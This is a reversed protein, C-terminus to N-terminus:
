YRYAILLKRAKKSFRLVMLAFFSLPITVAPFEMIIFCFIGTALGIISGSIRLWQLDGGAIENVKEVLNNDSLRDLMDETLELMSKYESEILRIFFNKLEINIFEKNEEVYDVLGSVLEPTILGAVREAAVPALKSVLQSVGAKIDLSDIETNKLRNLEALIARSELGKVLSNFLGSAIEQRGEFNKEEVFLELESLISERIEKSLDSVNLINTKEGIFFLFRNFTSSEKQKEIADQLTKDILTSFEDGNVLDGAKACIKIIYPDFEKVLGQEMAFAGLKRVDIKKLFDKIPKDLYNGIKGNDKELGLALKGILEESDKIFGPAQLYDKIINQFNRNELEMLLLERTFLKQEIAKVISKIIEERKRPVLGTSKFWLIQKTLATVAIYDAVSAVLTAEAVFTLARLLFIQWDAELKSQYFGSVALCAVLLISSILLLSDAVKKRRYYLEM